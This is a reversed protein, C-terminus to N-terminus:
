RSRAPAASGVRGRATAPLAPPFPKRMLAAPASPAATRPPRPAARLSGTASAGRRAPPTHPLGRRAPRERRLLMERRTPLPGPSTARAPWRTQAPPPRGHSVQRGARDREQEDVDFAAGTEPLLMGLRHSSFRDSTAFGLVLGM